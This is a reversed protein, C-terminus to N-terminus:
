PLPSPGSWYWSGPRMPGVACTAGRMPPGGLSSSCSSSAACCARMLGWGPQGDEFLNYVRRPERVAYIAGGNPEWGTLADSGSITPAAGTGYPQFAVGRFNGHGAGEPALTERWLSGRRLNVVDGPQFRFRDVRALTRWPSAPSTGAAADNGTISDVFYEAARASGPAAGVALLIALTAGAVLRAVRNVPDPDAARAEATAAMRRREAMMWCAFLLLGKVYRPEAVGSEDIGMLLMPLVVFFFIPKLNWPDDRRRFLAIWPRMFIALWFLLAPLGLGVAVSLYGNHLPTKAGRNWFKEWNPFYRDEFIAGEVSYGYGFIPNQRVKTLEYQWAETRGTLTTVDRTVYSSQGASLALYAALAAAIAAVCWLAGRMRYRWVAYGAIGILIVLISSRSDAMVAFAFGAAICGFVALTIRTRVARGAIYLYSLGAGATAVALAGVENPAGFIGCFRLIGSDDQIWNYIGRPPDEGEHFVNVPFVTATLALLLLLLGCGLLFRGLFRQVDEPEHMAEVAVTLTGFLLIAPLLRGASVGPDLSWALTLAGWGFFFGFAKFGGRRILESRWLAPLAPICLALLLPYRLWWRSTPDAPILNAYPLTEELTLAFILWLPDILTLRVCWAVGILGLLGLPALAVMRSPSDLVILTAAALLLSGGILLERQMPFARNRPPSLVQANFPM